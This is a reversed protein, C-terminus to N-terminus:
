RCFGSITARPKTRCDLCYLSPAYTADYDKERLLYPYTDVAVIGNRLWCVKAPDYQRPPIRGSAGLDEINPHPLHARFYEAFSREVPLEVREFHGRALHYIMLHWFKHAGGEVSVWRSDPSWAVFYSFAADRQESHREAEADDGIDEFLLETDWNYDVTPDAGIVKGYVDPVLQDSLLSLSKPNRFFFRYAHGTPASRMSRYYLAAKCDPAISNPVQVQVHANYVAFAVLLFILPIRMTAVGLLWLQRGDAQRRMRLLSGVFM